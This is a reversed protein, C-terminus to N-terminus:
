TGSHGPNLVSESAPGLGFSYLRWAMTLDSVGFSPAVASPQQSRSFERAVEPESMLLEAAFVNAERELVRDVDVGIDLTRCYVAPEQAIEL